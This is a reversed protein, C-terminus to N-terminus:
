WWKLEIKIAVNLSSAVCGFLVSNYLLVRLSDELITAYLKHNTCINQILSVNERVSVIFIDRLKVAHHFQNSARQKPSCTVTGTTIRKRHIHRTEKTKGRTKSTSVCATASKTQLGVWKNGQKSEKLIRHRVAKYVDLSSWSCTLLLRLKTRVTPLIKPNIPLIRKTLPWHSCWCTDCFTEALESAVCMRLNFTDIMHGNPNRDSLRDTITCTM